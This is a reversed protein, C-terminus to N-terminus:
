ISVNQDADPTFGEFIFASFSHKAKDLQEQTEITWVVLPCRLWWRWFHLAFKAAYQWNYALFDPCTLPTFLMNTLAWDLKENGSGEGPGFVDSLQGRIVEPRNQRYWLLARPDFSEICYAGKYDRLAEDTKVCVAAIDHATKIEVLLPVKGDILSLVDSFLPITQSSGFIQHQGLEDFTVDAIALDHGCARELDPDHFVVLQGDSTLRVDLEIGYGAQVARAFAALTNEPYDEHNDYLGRHAIYATQFGPIMAKNARM